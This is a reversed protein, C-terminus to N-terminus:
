GAVRDAGCHRAASIGAFGIGCHSDLAALLEVLTVQGIAIM